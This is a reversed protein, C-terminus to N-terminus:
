SGNSPPVRLVVHTAESCLTISPDLAMADRRWQNRCTTAAVAPAHNIMSCYTLLNGEQSESQRRGRTKKELLRTTSTRGRVEIRGGEADASSM